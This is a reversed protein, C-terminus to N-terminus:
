VQQSDCSGAKSRKTFGPPVDSSASIKKIKEMLSQEAGGLQIRHTPLRWSIEEKAAAKESVLLDIM